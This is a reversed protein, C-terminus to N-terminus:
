DRAALMGIGVPKVLILEYGALLVAVLLLVVPDSGLLINGGFWFLVCFAFCPYLVIGLAKGRRIWNWVAGYLMGYGLIFLCSFWGLDSFIDGFAGLWVLSGDLGARAIAGFPSDFADIPSPLNMIINLPIVRNFTKNFALFGSLYIGKGAFPFRLSGNVIAALRNYSAVTYGFLQYIQGDWSDAGRLFSFAFFLLFICSVIAIGGKFIFRFGIQGRLTKRTVYLIAIGCVVLMLLSRSLTLISSAIVSIVALSLTILLLRKRWGHLRLDSYRWFAWWVIGILTLPPLTVNQGIDYAVAQKLDQGQQAFLFLLISPNSKVLKLDSIITFALGLILPILIFTAPSVKTTLNQDQLRISPM